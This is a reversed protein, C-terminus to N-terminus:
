GRQPWSLRVGANTREGERIFKILEERSRKKGIDVLSPYNPPAGQLNDGHCGACNNKYLSKTEHTVMRIIWPQENSNM